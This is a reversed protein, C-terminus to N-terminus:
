QRLYARKGRKRMIVILLFGSVFGGVHAFWAIGGTKQTGFETIASMVQILIWYGLLFIAPISVVQIFILLVILTRVRARPFLFVYAGLVGAIAGSAGITPVQSSLNLFGHTLSAMLGCMFYFFLYKLHGLVDEVNDGFIWLYLMNGLLHLWGGHLFMATFITLPVPVLNKPSLDVVNTIEYPIFALRLTLQVPGGPALFYQYVFVSVNALILLINVIPITRSPNEDKLPIM